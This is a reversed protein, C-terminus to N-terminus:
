ASHPSHAIDALVASALRHEFLALTLLLEVIRGTYNRFRSSTLSTLHGPWVLYPKRKPLNRLHDPLAEGKPRTWVQGGPPVSEARVWGKSELYNEVQAPTLNGAADSDLFVYQQVLM